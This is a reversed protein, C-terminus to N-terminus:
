GVLKGNQYRLSKKIKVFVNEGVAPIFENTFAKFIGDERRIVVEFFHGRPIVLVVTGPLADDNQQSSLILDEPRIGIVDSGSVIRGEVLNGEFRNLAGIFTAVYETAPHRYLDQPNSFQEIKGANMVAVRDSISLAEEQDHTVIVTTIGLRRQLERIDERVKERLKADLNSLPEDLLLVDPEQVLARALAVRQQEGGSIRGPRSDQHHLLNVLGLAAEVKEATEIKGLGKIKLPYAVNRSVTMHPWLAYNQFVMASPRKEPGLNTVDKGAVKVTGADPILFGAIMRLTTTKGCGSPGLLSIMEGKAVSLDLNEIIVRGGLIKKLGRLELGMNAEVNKM